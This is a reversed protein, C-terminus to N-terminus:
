AARVIAAILWVVLVLAAITAAWVTLWRSLRWRRRPLLVAVASLLISFGAFIGLLGYLIEGDWLTQYAVWALAPGGLAFVGGVLRMVGGGVSSGTPPPESWVRGWWRRVSQM